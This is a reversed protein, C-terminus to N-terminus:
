YFHNDGPGPLSKGLAASRPPPAVATLAARLLEAPQAGSFTQVVRGNADLVAFSPHGRLGYDQQLRANAKDYVDLELVEVQGAFEKRLGHVIPTM